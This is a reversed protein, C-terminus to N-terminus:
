DPISQCLQWVALHEVLSSWRPLNYVLLEIHFVWWNYIFKWLLWPNEVDKEVFKGDCAPRDNRSFPKSGLNEFSCYALFHSAHVVTVWSLWISFVRTFRGIYIYIYTCICVHICVICMYIYMCISICRCIWICICICMCICINICIHIHVHIHTYIYVYVHTYIYIYTCMCIYIYTYIYIYVYICMYMYVYTYIYIYKNIYVNFHMHIYIYVFIYIYIYIYIYIRIHIYIYIYIHIHIYTYTYMEVHWWKLEARQNGLQFKFCGVPGSLSSDLSVSAKGHRVWSDAVM